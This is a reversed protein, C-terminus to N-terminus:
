RVRAHVIVAGEAGEPAGFRARQLRAL